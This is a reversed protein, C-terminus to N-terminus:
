ASGRLVGARGILLMAAEEFAAERDLVGATRSTAMFTAAIRELEAAVVPRAVDAIVDVDETAILRSAVSIASEPVHLAESM